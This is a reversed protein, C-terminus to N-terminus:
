VMSQRFLSNAQPNNGHDTVFPSIKNFHQSVMTRDQNPIQDRLLRYGPAKSIRVIKSSDVHPSVVSGFREQFIRTVQYPVPQKMKLSQYRQNELSDYSLIRYDIEKPLDTSMNGKYKYLPDNNIRYSELSPTTLIIDGSKKIRLGTYPKVHSSDIHKSHLIAKISDLETM